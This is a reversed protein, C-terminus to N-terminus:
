GEGREEPLIPRSMYFFVVIPKFTAVKQLSIGLSIALQEDYMFSSPLGSWM